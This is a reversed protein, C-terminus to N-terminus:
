QNFKLQLQNFKQSCPSDTLFEGQERNSYRHSKSIIRERLNKLELRTAGTEHLWPLVACVHFQPPTLNTVEGLLRVMVGSDLLLIEENDLETINTSWIVSEHDIFTRTLPGAESGGAQLRGLLRGQEPQQWIKQERKEQSEYYDTMLGIHKDLIFGAGALHLLAGGALSLVLSSGFIQWLPYRYGNKTHRLNYVAFIVMVIFLFLWLLPLTEIFFSWFSGHTVEYLSYTHHLLVFFSVAVAIAGLLVTLLWLSWLVCERSKFFFRSRPCISGCEIRELVKTKVLDNTPQIDM